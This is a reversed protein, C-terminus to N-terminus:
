NIPRNDYPPDDEDKLWSAFGAAVLMVLISGFFAITHQKSRFPNAVLFVLAAVGIIGKLLLKILEKVTEM